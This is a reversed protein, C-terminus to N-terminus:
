LLPSTKYGKFAQVTAQFLKLQKFKVQHNRRLLTKEISSNTTNFEVQYEADDENLIPDNDIGFMTIIFLIVFVIALFISMTASYNDNNKAAIKSQITSAPASAM